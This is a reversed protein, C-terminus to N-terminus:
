GVDRRVICCLMCSGQLHYNHVFLCPYVMGVPHRSVTEPRAIGRVFFIDATHAFV